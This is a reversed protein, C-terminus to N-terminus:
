ESAFFDEVAQYTLLSLDQLMTLLADYSRGKTMICIAYPHGPYYVIGCDHLEQFQSSAGGTRFGYKHAVRIEPPLKAPLGETFYSRTLLALAKESYKQTLYTSGYLVRLFFSYDAVRMYDGAHAYPDEVGMQKYMTTVFDLPLNVELMDKAENNSDLIMRGILDEVAYSVGEEVRQEAPITEQEDSAFRGDNYLHKQLIAPDEEAQKFYAMMVPIKLLSAPSYRADANLAFWRGSNLLRFYVSITAAQGERERESIFERIANEIPHLEEFEGQTNSDFGLLPRTLEGSMRYVAHPPRTESFQSGILIGLAFGVAAPIFVKWGM